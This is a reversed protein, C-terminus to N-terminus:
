CALLNSLSFKTIVCKFVKNSHLYMFENKAKETQEEYMKRLKVLEARLRNIFKSIFNVRM